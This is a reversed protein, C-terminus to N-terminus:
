KCKYTKNEMYIIKQDSAFYFIIFSITVLSFFINIKFVNNLIKEEIEQNEKLQYEKEQNQNDLNPRKTISRSFERNAFPENSM